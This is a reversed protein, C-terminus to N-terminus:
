NLLRLITPAIQETQVRAPLTKNNLHPNANVILLAVHTDDENFGGHEAINTSTPNAYIVGLQPLVIIDPTRSDTTPDNFPHTLSNGSMIRDIHALAKNDNLKAVVANVKSQDNLWLLSVDDQTAQALLSAQVSNVLNPIITSDVILRKTPDIPTQGHKA